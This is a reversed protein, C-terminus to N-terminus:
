HFIKFNRNNYAKTRSKENKRTESEKSLTQSMENM